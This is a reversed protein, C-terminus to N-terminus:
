TMHSGKINVARQVKAFTFIHFNWTKWLFYSVSTHLIFSFAFHKSPVICPLFNYSAHLAVHNDYYMYSWSWSEVAIERFFISFLYLKKLTIALWVFFTRQTCQFQNSIKQWDTLGDFPRVSLTFLFTSCLPACPLLIIIRRHLATYDHWTSPIFLFFM